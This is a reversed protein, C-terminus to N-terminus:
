QGDAEPHNSDVCLRNWYLSVFMGDVFADGSPNELIVAATDVTNYKENETQQAVFRMGGTFAGFSNKGDVVGCTALARFGDKDKPQRVVFEGSFRASEPDKLKAAVANEASRKALDDRSSCAILLVSYLALATLASAKMM